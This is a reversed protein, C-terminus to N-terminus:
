FIFSLLEDFFAIVQQPYPHCNSSLTEACKHYSNKKKKPSPTKSLSSDNVFATDYHRRGGIQNALISPDIPQLFLFEDSSNAPFLLLRNDKKLTVASDMSPRKDVIQNRSCLGIRWTKPFHKISKRRSPTVTRPLPMDNSVFDRNQPPPMIPIDPLQNKKAQINPLSSRSNIFCSPSTSVSALLSSIPSSSLSTTSPIDVLMQKVRLLEASVSSYDAERFALQSKIASISRNSIDRETELQSELRRIQDLRSKSIRASTEKVTAIEGLAKYLEERIGELRLVVSHVSELIYQPQM